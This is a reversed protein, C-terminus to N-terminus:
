VGWATADSLAGNAHEFIVYIRTGKPRRCHLTRRDAKTKDIPHFWEGVRYVYYSVGRVRVIDGVNVYRTM